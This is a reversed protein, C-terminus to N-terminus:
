VLRTRFRFPGRSRGKEIEVSVRAARESVQALADPLEVLQAPLMPVRGKAGKGDRVTIQRYGFDVDEAPHRRGSLLVFKRIWLVYVEETRDSYHKRRIADRVHDLLRPQESSGTDSRADGMTPISRIRHEPYRAVSCLPHCHGVMLRQRVFQGLM